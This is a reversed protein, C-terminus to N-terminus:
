YAISKMNINVFTIRWTLLLVSYQCNYYCFVTSDVIINVCQVTLSLILM